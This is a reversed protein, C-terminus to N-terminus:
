QASGLLIRIRERIFPAVIPRGDVVDVNLAYVNDVIQADCDKQAAEKIKLLDARNRALAAERIDRVWDGTGAYYVVYRSGTPRSFIISTM